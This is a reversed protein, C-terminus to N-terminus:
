DKFQEQAYLYFAAKWRLMDRKNDEDSTYEEFDLANYAAAFQAKNFFRVGRFFLNKYNEAAMYSLKNKSTPLLLRHYLQTFHEKSFKLHPLFSDQIAKASHQLNSDQLLKEIYAVQNKFFNEARELLLQERAECLSNFYADAAQAVEQAPAYRLKHAHVRYLVHCFYQTIWGTKQALVATYNDLRMIKADNYALLRQISAAVDQYHDLYVHGTRPNLHYLMRLKKGTKAADRYLSTSLVLLTSSDERFIDKYYALQPHDQVTAQIFQGTSKILSRIDSVPVHGASLLLNLSLISLTWCVHYITRM